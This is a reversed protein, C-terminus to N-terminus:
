CTVVDFPLTWVSPQLQALLVVGIGTAQGIHIEALTGEAMGQSKEFEQIVELSEFPLREYIKQLEPHRRVLRMQELYIKRHLERGPRMFERILVAEGMGPSSKAEVKALFRDNLNLATAMSRQSADVFLDMKTPYRSFFYGESIGADRTIRLTTAGEFGQTGVQTLTALLLQTLVEDDTGFDFGADIHVASDEPQERPATDKALTRALREIHWGLYPTVRDEGPWAVILGLAVILAYANRAAQAPTPGQESPQLSGQLTKRLSRDVAKRLVPDFDRVILLERGAVLDPGPEIFPALADKLLDPDTQVERKLLERLAPLLVPEVRQTWVAVALESRDAFRDAVPRKSLGAQKGAAALNLAGWGQKSLIEVAADLIRIDNRVSRAQRPRAGQLPGTASTPSM